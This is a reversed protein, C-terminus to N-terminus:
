YKLVFHQKEKFEKRMFIIGLGYLDISLLIKPHTYLRRWKKSYRKTAHIESVILIYEDSFQNYSNNFLQVWKGPNKETMIVLDYKLNDNATKTSLLLPNHCGYHTKIANALDVYKPSLTGAPLALQTPIISRSYLVEESFNYVFPSHVGHLKKASLKYRVYEIFAHLTM